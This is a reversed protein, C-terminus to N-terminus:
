SCSTNERFCRSPTPTNARSNIAKRWGVSRIPLPSPNDILMSASVCNFSRKRWLESVSKGAEREKLIGIIQNRRQGDRITLPANVGDPSLLADRKNM